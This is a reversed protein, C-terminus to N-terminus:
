FETTLTGDDLRTLIDAGEDAEKLEELAARFTPFDAWIDENDTGPNIVIVWPNPNEKPSTTYGCSKKFAAWAEAPIATRSENLWYTRTAESSNNWWAM